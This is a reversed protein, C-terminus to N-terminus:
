ASTKNASGRPCLATTAIHTPSEIPPRKILPKLLPSRRSITDSFLAHSAAGSQGQAGEGVCDGCLRSRLTMAITAPREFLVPTLLLNEKQPKWRGGTQSLNSRAGGQQHLSWPLPEKGVYRTSKAIVIVDCAQMLMCASYSACVNAHILRVLCVNV